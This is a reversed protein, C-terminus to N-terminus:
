YNGPVSIMFRDSRSKAWGRSAKEKEHVNEVVVRDEFSSDV